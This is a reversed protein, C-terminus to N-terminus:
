NHEPCIGHAQIRPSTRDDDSGLHAALGSERHRAVFDYSGLSSTMLDLILSLGYYHTHSGSGARFGFRASSRSGAFGAPPTLHIPTRWRPRGGPPPALRMWSTANARSRKCGDITALPLSPRNHVSIRWCPAIAAYAARSSPKNEFQESANSAARADRDCDAQQNTKSRM